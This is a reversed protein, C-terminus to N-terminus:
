NQLKTHNRPDDKDLHHYPVFCQCGREGPKFGARILVVEAKGAWRARSKERSGGHYLGRGSLKPTVLGSAMADNVINDTQNREFYLGPIDSL